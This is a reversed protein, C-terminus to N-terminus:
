QTIRRGSRNARSSFSWDSWRQTYIKYLNYITNYLLPRYICSSLFTCIYICVRKVRKFRNSKNSGNAHTLSWTRQFRHISSITNVLKFYSRQSEFEARLKRALAVSHLACRAVLRGLHVEQYSRQSEREDKSCSSIPNFLIHIEEFM